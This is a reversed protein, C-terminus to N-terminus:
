KTANERTKVTIDYKVNKIEPHNILHSKLSNIFTSDDLNDLKKSLDIDMEINMYRHDSNHHRFHVLVLNEESVKKFLERYGEVELKLKEYYALEEKLEKIKNDLKM